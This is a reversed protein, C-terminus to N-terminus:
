CSPKKSQLANQYIDTKRGKSCLSHWLEWWSVKVYKKFYEGQDSSPLCPEASTVVDPSFEKLQDGEMSFQVVYKLKVQDPSYVVYEDDQCLICM